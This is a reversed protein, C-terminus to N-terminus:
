DIARFIEQAEPHDAAFERLSYFLEIYDDRDPHDWCLGNFVFLCTIIGAADASVEGKYFNTDVVVRLKKDVIAPAMYMAGNSLRYMHWYGGQYDESLQSLKDYLSLEVRLYDADFHHPLIQLRQEDNDIRTATIKSM